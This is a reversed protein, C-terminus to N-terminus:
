KEMVDVTLGRKDRDFYDTQAEVNFGATMGNNLANRSIGKKFSPL